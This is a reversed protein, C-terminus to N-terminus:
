YPPLPQGSALVNLDILNEAKKHNIEAIKPNRKTETQKKRKTRKRKAEIKRRKAKFRFLCFFPNKQTSAFFNKSCKRM